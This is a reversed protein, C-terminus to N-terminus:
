ERAQCSTWHFTGGTGRSQTTLFPKSKKREPSKETGRSSENSVPQERKIQSSKSLAGLLDGDWHLFLLGQCSPFDQLSGMGRKCPLVGSQSHNVAVRRDDLVKHHLQEFNFVLEGGLIKLKPDQVAFLSLFCLGLHKSITPPEMM